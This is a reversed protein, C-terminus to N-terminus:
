PHSRHLSTTSLAQTAWDVGVLPIEKKFFSHIWRHVIVNIRREGRIESLVVPDSSFIPLHCAQWFNGKHCNLQFRPSQIGTGQFSVYWKFFLIIILFSWTLIICHVQPWIKRELTKENRNSKLQLYYWCKLFCAPAQKVDGKDHYVSSFCAEQAKRWCGYPFCKKENIVGIGKAPM